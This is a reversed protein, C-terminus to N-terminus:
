WFFTPFYKKKRVSSVIERRCNVCVDTDPTDHSMTLTHLKHFLYQSAHLMAFFLSIQSKKQMTDIRSRVQKQLVGYIKGCEFVCFFTIIQECPIHCDRVFLYIMNAYIKHVKFTRKDQKVEPVLGCFSRVLQKKAARRFNEGGPTNKAKM